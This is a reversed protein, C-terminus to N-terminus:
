AASQPAPWAAHRPSTPPLNFVVNTTFRSNRMCLHYKAQSLNFTIAFAATFVAIHGAIASILGLSFLSVLFAAHYEKSLALCAGIGAGNLIAISGTLQLVFNFGDRTASFSPEHIQMETIQADANGPEKTNLHSPDSEM